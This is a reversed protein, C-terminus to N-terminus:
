LSVTTERALLGGRDRFGETSWSIGLPTLDVRCKRVVAPNGGAPAHNGPREAGAGSRRPRRDRRELLVDIAFLERGLRVRHCHQRVRCAPGVQARERAAAALQEEIVAHAIRPERREIRDIVVLPEPLLVPFLAHLAPATQEQRWAHTM